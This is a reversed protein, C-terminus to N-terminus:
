AALVSRLLVSLRTKPFTSIIIIIIIVDIRKVSNSLQLMGAPGM